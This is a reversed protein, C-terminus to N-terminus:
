GQKETRQLEQLIQIRQEGVKDKKEAQGMQHPELLNDRISAHASKDTAAPVIRRKKKDLRLWCYGLNGRYVNRTFVTPHQM